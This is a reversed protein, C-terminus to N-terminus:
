SRRRVLACPAKANMNGEDALGVLQDCRGMGRGVGLTGQISVLVEHVLRQWHDVLGIGVVRDRCDRALESPYGLIRVEVKCRLGPVELFLGRNPILEVRSPQRRGQCLSLFCRARVAQRTTPRAFRTPRAVPGSSSRHTGQGCGGM